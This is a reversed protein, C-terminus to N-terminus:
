SRYSFNYNSVSLLQATITFNARVQLTSVPGGTHELHILGYVGNGDSQYSFLNPCPSIYQSDVTLLLLTICFVSYSLIRRM